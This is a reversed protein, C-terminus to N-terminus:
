LVENHRGLGTESASARALWHQARQLARELAAASEREGLARLVRHSMPGGHDHVWLALAVLEVERLSWTRTRQGLDGLERWAALRRRIDAPILTPGAAVWLHVVTPDASPKLKVLGQARLFELESALDDTVIRPPDPDYRYRTKLEPGRRALYHLAALREPSVPRLESASAILQLLRARDLDLLGRSRAPRPGPQDEITQGGRGM